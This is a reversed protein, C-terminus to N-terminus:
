VVIGYYNALMAGQHISPFIYIGGMMFVVLLWNITHAQLIFVTEKRTPAQEHYKGKLMEKMRFLKM